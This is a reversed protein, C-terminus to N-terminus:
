KKRDCIILPLRNIVRVKSTKELDSWTERSTRLDWRHHRFCTMLNLSLTCAHRKELMRTFICVCLWLSSLLSINNYYLLLSTQYYDSTLLLHAENLPSPLHWWKGWWFEKPLLFSHLVSSKEHQGAHPCFVTQWLASMNSVYFPLFRWRWVSCWKLGFHNVYSYFM